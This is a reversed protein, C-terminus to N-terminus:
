IVKVIDALVFYQTLAHLYYRLKKLGPSEGVELFSFRWLERICHTLTVDELNSTAQIAEVTGGKGPAFHAMSILLEQSKDSLLKWSSFFIGQYFRFYEDEQSAQDPIRVDKLLTLVIDLDLSELQGIVLKLALPSGGTDNAIQKLKNVGATAVRKINKQDAEQHIFRICDEEALGDLHIAYVDGQFRQRSTLIAKSTGLCSLLRHAIENQPDKATELNDLVILVRQM